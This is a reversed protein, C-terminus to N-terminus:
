NVFAMLWEFGPSLRSKLHTTRYIGLIAVVPAQFLGVCKLDESFLGSKM